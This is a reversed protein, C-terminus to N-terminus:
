RFDGDYLSAGPNPVEATDPHCRSQTATEPPKTPTAPIPGDGQGLAREASSRATTVKDGAPVGRPPLYRDFVDRFQELAYGRSRADVDRVTRTKIGFPRLLKSLAQGSLGNGHRWEAWPSEDMAVLADILRSTVMRNADAEEFARRIDSLLQTGLSPDERKQGSLAAAAARAREPWGGGAHEAIALLPEWGDFARPSLTELDAPEIASLEDVYVGAWEAALDRLGQAEPELKRWRPREIQEHAAKRHLEIVIARNRITDPWRSADIGALAKPCFTSFDRFEWDSGRPILRPVTSGRRNGGNLIATLPEVRDKSSGFLRDVEDLLVTPQDRDIRRFLVAETPLGDLKWAM